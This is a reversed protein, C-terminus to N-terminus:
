FKIIKNLVAFPQMNNHATDGGTNQNTATTNQNTAVTTKSTSSITNDGLALGVNTGTTNSGTSFYDYTRPLLGSHSHADQTHTHANQTHTHSPMEPTTLIHAEEGGTGALTRATLGSGAGSGISTRGRLDPLNFTTSGDGTGWTTGIAEFLRAYTTRSIASGDCSLYGSPASSGAFDLVTGAPVQPTFTTSVDM